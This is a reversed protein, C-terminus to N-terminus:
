GRNIRAVGTFAGWTHDAVIRGQARQWGITGAAAEYRLSAGVGQRVFGANVGPYVNLSLAGRGYRGALVNRNPRLLSDSLM